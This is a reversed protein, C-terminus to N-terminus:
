WLKELCIIMSRIRRLFASPLFQEPEAVPEHLDLFNALGAADRDGHGAVLFLALPDVGPLAVPKIRAPASRTM